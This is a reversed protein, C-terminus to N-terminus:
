IHQKIHAVYKELLNINSVASLIRSGVVDEIENFRLLGNQDILFDIGVMDFQFHDVIIRVLTQEDNTLPYWTATGGLKYNARFDHANDRLVSGVITQGIVFVRVDKGHQVHASQIIVDGASHTKRYTDWEDRDSILFVHKGSRGTAEKIVFPYAIPPHETLRTSYDFLTDVMPIGLAHVAQYTYAKHNCLQSINAQNFLRVNCAELQYSLVPDITRVVAFDPKDIQIGQVYITNEGAVIGITIDERFVLQLHIQQLNAEEIFWDIYARNTEADALNYILWGQKMTM